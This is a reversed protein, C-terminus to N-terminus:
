RYTIGKLRKLTRDWVGEIARIAEPLFAEVRGATIDKQFADADLIMCDRAIRDRFERIGHDLLKNELYHELGGEHLFSKVADEPTAPAITYIMKIPGVTSWLQLALDNVEGTVNELDSRPSVFTGFM